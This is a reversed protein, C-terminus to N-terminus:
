KKLSLDKDLKRQKEIDELKNVKDILKDITESLIEIKQTDSLQTIDERIFCIGHVLRVFRDYRNKYKISCLM